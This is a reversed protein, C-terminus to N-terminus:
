KIVEYGDITKRAKKADLLRQMSYRIVSYQVCLQSSLEVMTVPKDYACLADYLMETSEDTCCSAKRPRRHILGRKWLDAVLEKRTRWKVNSLVANLNNGDIAAAYATDDPKELFALALLRLVSHMRRNGADDVLTVRLYTHGGKVTSATAIIEKGTALDTVIGDETIDYNSFGPITM